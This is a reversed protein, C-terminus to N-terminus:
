LLCFCSSVRSHGGPADTPPTGEAGNLQSLDQSIDAGNVRSSAAMRTLQGRDGDGGRPHNRSRDGHRALSAQHSRYCYHWNSSSEAGLCAGGSRGQLSSLTSTSSSSLLGGLRAGPPPSPAIFAEVTTATRHPSLFCVCAITALSSLMSHSSTMYATPRSPERNTRWLRRCGPGRQEAGRRRKEVISGARPVLRENLGVGDVLCHVARSHRFVVLDLLINSYPTGINGPPIFAPFDFCAEFAFDGFRLAFFM